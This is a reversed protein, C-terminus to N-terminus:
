DPSRWGRALFTPVFFVDALGVAVLVYAAWMPMGVVGQIVLLGLVVMAVGALRAFVIVLWRNRATEDSVPDAM